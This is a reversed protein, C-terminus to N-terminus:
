SSESCYLRHVDGMLKRYAAQDELHDNVYFSHHSSKLLLTYVNAADPVDKRSESVVNRVALSHETPVHCDVLSTVFVVPINVPFQQALELPSLYQPDYRTLWSLAWPIFRGLHRGYRATCINPVSDFIGELLVFAIRKHEEPTMHVVAGLVTAAGRSSGALVIRREKIIPDNWVARIPALFHQIDHAQAFNVWPWALAYADGMIIRQWQRGIDTAVTTYYYMLIDPTSLCVEPPDIPCLNFLLHPANPIHAPPTIITDDIALSMSPPLGERGAYRLAQMWSAGLGPAYFTVIKEANVHKFPEQHEAPTHCQGRRPLLFSTAFLPAFLIFGMLLTLLAATARSNVYFGCAIVAYPLLSLLRLRLRAKM